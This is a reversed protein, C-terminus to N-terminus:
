SVADFFFNLKFYSELNMHSLAVRFFKGTGGSYCNEKKKTKPNVVELDHSLKPMTTFFREIQKFQASNMQVLFIM